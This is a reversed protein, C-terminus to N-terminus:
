KNIIEIIQILQQHSLTIREGDITIIFRQRFTAMDGWEPTPEQLSIFIREGGFGVL